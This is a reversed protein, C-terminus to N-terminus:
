CYALEPTFIGQVSTMSLIIPSSSQGCAYGREFYMYCQHRTIVPQLGMQLCVKLIQMLHPM